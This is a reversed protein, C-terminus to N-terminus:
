IEAGYRVPQPGLARMAAAAKSFGDPRLTGLAARLWDPVPTAGRLKVEFLVADCLLRRDTVGGGPEGFYDAAARGATVEADFTLRIAGDPSEYSRRRYDVVVTPVLSRLGRVRAFEEQEPSEPPTGGRLLPAVAAPHAEFRAKRVALGRRHKVEVWLPAGAPTASGAYSRIRLKTSFNPNDVIARAFRADETDLYVSRNWCTHEGDYLRAPLHANVAEELRDAREAALVFTRETRSLESM